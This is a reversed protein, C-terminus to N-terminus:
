RRRWGRRTAPPSPRAASRTRRATGRRRRGAPPPAPPGSVSRRHHAQADHRWRPAPEDRAATRPSRETSVVIPKVGSSPSTMAVGTRCPRGPRPATAASARQSSRRPRSRRASSCGRPSPLGPRCRRCARPRLGHPHRRGPRRGPVRTHAIAQAGRHGGHGRGQASEVDQREGAAHALMQSLQPTPRRPCAPEQADAEVRVGVLGRVRRRPSPRRRWRPDNTMAARSSTSIARAPADALDESGARPVRPPPPRPGGGARGRREVQQNPAAPPHPHRAIAACQVLGERWALGGGRGPRQRRAQPVPQPHPDARDRVVPGDAAADRPPLGEGSFRSSSPRGAPSGSTRGAVGRRRHGPGGTPRRGHGPAPRARDRRPALPHPRRRAPRDDVVQPHLGAGRVRLAQLMLRLDHADTFVAVTFPPDQALVKVAADIGGAMRAFSDVLMVDPPPELDDAM